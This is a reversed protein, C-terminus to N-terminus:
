RGVRCGPPFPLPRCIVTKVSWALLQGKRSRVTFHKGDEAEYERTGVALVFLGGIGLVCFIVFAKMQLAYFGGFLVGAVFTSSMIVVCLLATCFVHIPRRENWETKETVEITKLGETTEVVTMEM